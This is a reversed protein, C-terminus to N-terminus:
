RTEEKLTTVINRKIILWAPISGSLFSFVLICPISFLFINLVAFDFSLSIPMIISRLLLNDLSNLLLPTLLIGLFAGVTTLLITETLLQGFITLNTAGFIKRIAIEESRGYSKSINLSLINLAPILLLLLIISSFPVVTIKPTLAEAQNIKIEEGEDSSAKQLIQEFENRIQPITSEDKATLFVSFSLGKRSYFSLPLWLNSNSMGMDFLSTNDVAGVVKFDRGLINIEKGVASEDRFYANATYKDIVVVPINEDLENRTIARGELFRFRFVNFYDGDIYALNFFALQGNVELNTICDHNRIVIAEPTEMGAIYQKYFEPTINRSEHNEDSLSYVVWTRDAYGPLQYDGKLTQFMVFLICAFVFTLATGFVSLVTYLPNQRLAHITTLFYNKIM